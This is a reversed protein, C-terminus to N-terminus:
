VIVKSIASTRVTRPMVIKRNTLSNSRTSMIASITMILRAQSPSTFGASANEPRALLATIDIIATMIRPYPTSREPAMFRTVSDIILVAPDLSFFSTPRTETVTPNIEANICFMPAAASKKGDSRRIELDVPIGMERIRIGMPNATMRPPVTVM